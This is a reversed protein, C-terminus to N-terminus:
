ASTPSNQRQSWLAEAHDRLAEGMQTYAAKLKRRDDRSIWRVLMGMFLEGNSFTSSGPGMTEIEIYRIATVFGGLRTSRWHLQEYPVWDQVVPQIVRVPEGPLAQHVSLSTGIKLQGEARPHVPNWQEWTSFDSILEWILEAPAQIGIRHEVARQM